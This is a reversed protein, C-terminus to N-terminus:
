FSLAASRFSLAPSTRSSALSFSPPAGVARLRRLLADGRGWLCARSLRLRAADGACRGWGLLLMSHRLDSVRPLEEQVLEAVDEVDLPLEDVLSQRLQDALNLVTLQLVSELRVQTLGPAVDRVDFLDELQEALLRLDLRAEAELAEHLLMRLH